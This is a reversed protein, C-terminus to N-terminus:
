KKDPNSWTLSIDPNGDGDVRITFGVPKHKNVFESLTSLLDQVSSDWRAAEVRKTNRQMRLLCLLNKQTDGDLIAAKTGGTKPM